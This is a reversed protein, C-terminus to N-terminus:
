GEQLMTLTDIVTMLDVDNVINIPQQVAGDDTTEAVTVLLSGDKVEARMQACITIDLAQKDIYAIIHQFTRDIQSLKTKDHNPYASLAEHVLFQM